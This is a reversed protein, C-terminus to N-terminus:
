SIKVKPIKLIVKTGIGLQSEIDIGFADGYTLKIRQNVNRLGINRPRSLEDKDYSKLSNKIEILKDEDIGSGSDLVTIVVEQDMDVAEIHVAAVHDQGNNGHIIANEILPQLIFRIIICEMINQPINFSVKFGEGYRFNMIEIYNKVYDIEESILCTLSTSKFIPRLINGLSTIINVINNASIVAAMWKITNLTNYLFHPNIQAQLAEIELRRKDQEISKNKEVLELISKSMRNFQMGLMGLENRPMTKLTLGLNGKSMELMACTLGNLPKTIRYIWYLSIVLAGFICISFVVIFITRLKLTDKIFDAYPIESILTWGLKDLKYYVIQTHTRDQKFSLSGNKKATGLENYYSCSKGIQQKNMHSIIKGSNDVIYMKSDTSTTFNSYISTFVNENMNVVLTGGQESHYLSKIGRIGSILATSGAADNGNGLIDAEFDMTKNGGVWVIKPFINKATDYGASDYFRHRVSGRKLFNSKTPTVGVVEEYNTFVYISDIYNYNNLYERMKDMVDILMQIRETEPATKYELLEQLREDLIFMKSVKDVENCFALISYEAQRFQQFTSQESRKEIIDLVASYVFSSSLVMITLVITMFSVVLQTKLKFGMSDEAKRNSMLIKM